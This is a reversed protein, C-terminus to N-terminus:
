NKITGIKRITIMGGFNNGILKSHDLALSGTFQWGEWKLPSYTLEGMLSLQTLPTPLPDELSGWHKSWSGMFRYHLENTPQGDFGIHHSRLRQNPM